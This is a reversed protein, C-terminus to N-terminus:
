PQPSENKGAASVSASVPASAPSENGARDVATVTYTYLRGPVITMDHYAPTLLPRENLKPGTAMVQETRYVNYGALDTESSIAWSLEIHAPTDSTAPVIVAVLGEPAAPPFTDKPTITLLNSDDSEASEEPKPGYRVVSRVSYTYTHDFEFRTDRYSASPAEALLEFAPTSPESTKAASADTHQEARYVRYGTLPIENAPWNLNSPLAPASWALEVADQTVRAALDSIPQAAPYLHLIALNSDASEAKESLRTRVIIVAQQGAHQAIEGPKIDATFRVRGEREYQDALAAPVEVLLDKQSVALAAPALKPNAPFYQRYIAFAPTSKLPRQRSTKAPMKFTLILRNGQQSAQLDTIAAPAPAHRATPEAPAACGAFFLVSLICFLFSFLPCAAAFKGPLFGFFEGRKRKEM